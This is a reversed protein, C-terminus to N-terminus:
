FWSFFLLIFLSVEMGFAKGCGAFPCAFDHKGEHFVLIHNQLNFNTTFSKECGERVCKFMHREGSHVFQKHKQLFWANHFM